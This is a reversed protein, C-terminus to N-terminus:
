VNYLSNNRLRKYMEDTALRQKNAMESEQFLADLKNQEDRIQQGFQQLM